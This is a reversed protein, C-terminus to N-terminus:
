LLAEIFPSIDRGDVTADSNIDATISSECSGPLGLLVNVFEPVDGLDLVGDGNMDGPVPARPEVIMSANTTPGSAVGDSPTVTCVVVDGTCVGFRPIADAHGATTVNRVELGNVTWVYHYRVIEYDPEDLTLSTQVRCFIADEIRPHSTDFAVTIPNPARNVIQGASAVVTFPATLLTQGNLDFLINWTGLANLDINYRWWWWSERYFPNGGFDGTGSDFAISSNPRRYRVRWTTNAPMNILSIWFSVGQVGSVFTGTRPMDFPLGPYNEILVNTINFDRLYMTRNIPTQAIWQSEAPQCPGQYPETSTTGSNDYTGFHLHPASSCGISGVLGIPQGARVFQGDTVAVSNRRMHWYYCFRGGGHDIIVFNANGMCSTHMDDEGDHTVLVTGDLVAFIPVGILQEGFSRLDVDTADHGDYTFDTCDWDLIGATPDLDNFNVTFVDGYLTGGLPYFPFKRPLMTGRETGSQRNAEQYAHILDQIHLKEAPSVCPTATPLGGGGMLGDAFVWQFPVIGAMCFILSAARIEIRREM